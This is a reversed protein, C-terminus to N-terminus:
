TLATTTSLMVSDLIDRFQVTYTIHLIALVNFDSASNFGTIAGLFLYHPEDPSAGITTWTSEQGVNTVHLDWDDQVYNVHMSTRDFGSAAANLFTGHTNKAEHFDQAKDFGASDADNSKHWGVCAGYISSGANTWDISVDCSVVRYAEYIQKWQNLMRPLHNTDFSMAGPNTAPANVPGSSASSQLSNLQIQIREMVNGTSGVSALVIHDTYPLTVTFYDPISKAVNGFPKVAVEGGASTNSSSMTQDHSINEQGYTFRRRKGRALYQQHDEGDVDGVFRRKVDSTDSGSTDSGMSDTVDHVVDKGTQYLDKADQILANAPGEIESVATHLADEGLKVFDTLLSQRGSM